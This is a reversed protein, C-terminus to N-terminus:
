TGRCCLQMRLLMVRGAAARRRERYGVGAGGNVSLMLDEKVWGEVECISTGLRLPSMARSVVRRADRVPGSM